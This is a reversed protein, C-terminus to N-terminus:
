CCAARRAPAGHPRAGDAALGKLAQAPATSSPPRCGSPTGPAASPLALLGARPQARSRPSSFREGTGVRRTAVRSSGCSSTSTPRASSCTTASSYSPRSSWPSATSSRTGGPFAVQDKLAPDLKTYQVAWDGLRNKNANVYEVGRTYGRRFRALTDSNNRLWRELAVYQADEFNPQVELYPYGLVTVKGSNRAITLFPEPSVAADLAGNTLADPMQPFPVETWQVTKVDVGKRAMLETTYTDTINKLTNTAVRKGGLNAFTVGGDSRVLLGTADPNSVGLM